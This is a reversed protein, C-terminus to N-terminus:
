QPQQMFRVAEGNVPAGFVLPLSKRCINPQIESVTISLPMNVTSSSYLTMHARDFLSAISSRSHSRVGTELDCYLKFAFIECVTRGIWKMNPELTKPIPAYFPTIELQVLNSPSFMKQSKADIDRFRYSIHSFNSNVVLLFNCIRKRNAGIDIVSSSRSRGYTRIKESIQTTWSRVYESPPSVTARLWRTLQANENGARCCLLSDLRYDSCLHGGM